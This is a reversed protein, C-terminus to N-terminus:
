LEKKTWTEPTLENNIEINIHYDFPKAGRGKIYEYTKLIGKKLISLPLASLFLIILPVPLFFNFLM